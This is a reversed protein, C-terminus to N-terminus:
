NQENTVNAIVNEFVDLNIDTLEGILLQVYALEARSSELSLRQSIFTSHDQLLQFLTIRGDMYQDYEERLKLEGYRVQDEYSKVQNAFRKEQEYLGELQSTADLMTRENQYTVRSLKARQARYQGRASRNTLPVSLNVGGSIDDNDFTSGHARDFDGSAGTRSYNVFLDLDPLRANKNAKLTENEAAISYDLIKRLRSENKLYKLGKRRAHYKKLFSGKTSVPSISAPPDLPDMMAAVQKTYGELAALAGEWQAKYNALQELIRYLDSQEAVKSKVQDRVLKVQAKTKRYVQGLTNADNYAKLWNLYLQTMESIFAEVNEEYQVESLSLQIRTLRKNLQDQRGMINKLLPQTLFLTISPTYYPNMPNFLNTFVPTYTSKNWFNNYSAGLRTGTQSVIKNVGIKYSIQHDQTSEFGSIQPQEKKALSFLGELNVDDIGRAAYEEGKAQSYSQLYARVTPNNRITESIFNNLSVKTAAYTNAALSLNISLILVAILAKGIWQM